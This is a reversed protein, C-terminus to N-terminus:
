HGVNDRGPGTISALQQQVGAPFEPELGRAVMAETAIRVLDNRLGHRASNM